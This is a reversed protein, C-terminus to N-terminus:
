IEPTSTTAQQEMKLWVNVAAQPNYGARAMLETGITDAETEHSRSFPLTLTYQTALNALNAINSNGTAMGVAM